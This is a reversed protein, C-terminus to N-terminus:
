REKQEQNKMLRQPAQIPATTARVIRDSKDYTTQYRNPTEKRIKTNSQTIPQHNGYHPPQREKTFPKDEEKSTFTQDERSAV